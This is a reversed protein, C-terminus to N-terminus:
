TQWIGHRFVADIALTDPDQGLANALALIVPRSPQKKGSEIENLYSRSIGAAKALATQNNQYQSESRYRKLLERDITVTDPM